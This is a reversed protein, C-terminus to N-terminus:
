RKRESLLFRFFTDVPPIEDWYVEVTLNIKPQFSRADISKRLIRVRTIQEKKIKLSQAIQFHLLEKKEAQEPTLVLQLETHMNKPSNEM